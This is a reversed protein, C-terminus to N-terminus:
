RSTDKTSNEFSIRRGSSVKSGPSHSGVMSSHISECASSGYSGVTLSERDTEASSERKLEALSVARHDSKEPTKNFDIMIKQLLSRDIGHSDLYRQLYQCAFKKRSIYDFCDQHITDSPSVYLEFHQKIYEIIKDQERISLTVIYKAVPVISSNKAHEENQENEHRLRMIAPYVIKELTCDLKLTASNSYDLSALSHSVYFFIIMWFLM